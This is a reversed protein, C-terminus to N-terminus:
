PRKSPEKITGSKGPEAIAKGSKRPPDSHVPKPIYLKDALEKELIEGGSTSILARLTQESLTDPFFHVNGDCMLGHFGGSYVGGLKPVPPTNPASAFGPFPLDAPRTWEVPEPAEAAMLSYATGDVIGTLPQGQVFHGPKFHPYMPPPKKGKPVPGRYPTRIFAMEGTFSQVHTMGEPASKGPSRFVKPMRGLLKKNHDSDWAETVKFEQYLKGEEPGLYPLIQVRWSLGLDGNPGVIGAPFVGLNSHYNHMALGIQKLRKVAEVQAEGDLYVDPLSGGGGGGGTESDDKKGCGAVVALLALLGFTLSFRIGTM